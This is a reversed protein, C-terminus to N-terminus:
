NPQHIKGATDPDKQRFAIRNGKKDLSEIKSRKLNKASGKDDEVNQNVDPNGFLIKKSKLQAEHERISRDFKGYFKKM